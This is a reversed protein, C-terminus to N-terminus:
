LMILFLLLVSFGVASLIVHGKQRRIDLVINIALVLCAIVLLISYYVSTIDLLPKLYRSPHSKLYFYQELLSTRVPQVNRWGVGRSISNGAKDVATLTAPVVPDLLDEKEKVKLVASGKWIGDETRNLSINRGNLGVHAKETDDSLKAEARVIAEERGDPTDVTMYTNQQDIRPPTDDVKLVGASSTATQGERVSEAYLRHQGSSLDVLINLNKFIGVKLSKVVRDNSYIRVKEAEPAVVNIETQDANTLEESLIKLSPRPLKRTSTASADEQQRKEAEKRSKEEEKTDEIKEEEEKEEVEEKEEKEEVEKETVEKTEKAKEAEETKKVQRKEEPREEKEAIETDKTEEEGGVETEVEKSEEKEEAEKEKDKRPDPTFPHAFFQAALTTDNEKYKGNSMAVGIRSFEPDLLNERHTPSEKWARVVEEAEAFGMALNEGAVTYNYGAGDLWASVSGGDPGVHAFYQEIFMDQCKEFAAQTLKESEQLADKGKEQRFQNTLEVVKRSEQSLIDPTLWAGIPFFVVAGMVLLKMLVASATHFALRRPHLIHPRHDNGEHAIFMDKLKGPGKPNRGKQIEEGDDMGDKDTDKNYPDTGIEKEFSDSLGDSDSDQIERSSFGDLFNIHQKKRKRM